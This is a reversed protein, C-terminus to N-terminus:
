VVFTNRLLPAGACGDPYRERRGSSASTRM